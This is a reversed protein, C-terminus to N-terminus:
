VTAYLGSRELRTIQRGQLNSIMPELTESAQEGDVIAYLGHANIAELFANAMNKYSSTYTDAINRKMNMSFDKNDINPIAGLLENGAKEVDGVSDSIGEAVGLGLMRGVQDRMLASPSHIGFLGKIWGLVDNVWGTLKNWLWEGANQIGQWIGKVLNTGIDWMTSAFTGFANVVGSIIQPVASVITAIIQPLNEILACFLQVGADIIAPLNDMLTDCIASIIEPLAACITNIIEPLAQILAVFLEIGAKVIASINKTFFDVIARIIQPLADIITNIIQPLSKILATLLKIGAQIIKDLNQTFFSAISDIVQPLKAILQPIADLIGQALAMLLEIGADIVAPANAIFTDVLTTIAQMAAPILEPIAQVLGDIFSQLVQIAVELVKPLNEIVGEILTIIIQSATDLLLPLSEMIADALATLIETALPLMKEAAKSLEEVFNNLGASLMGIGSEEDGSFIKALGDMMTTVSPLFESVMRTRLGTIATNMNQLSDQYAAAAKVAEDSMVGGLEHIQQRMAETDEASTNLLAGLEVAGRGLLKSALYTRQTTYEVDQLARITREFLEEQSLEAVERQSIGLAQFEKANTQAANALTKMSGKMAEMSSGSHQLIFDWEQYKQASLGMKQSMKDINDGYQATQGTASLITKTLAATATGVAAVAGIAVKSGKSLASGLSSGLSKGQGEAEKVDSDFRSKDLTLVAALEFLNM